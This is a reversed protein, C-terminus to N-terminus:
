HVDDGSGQSEEVPERHPPELPLDLVFVAGEGPHSLCESIMSAIFDNLRGFRSVTSINSRKSSSLDKPGPLFLRAYESTNLFGSRVRM